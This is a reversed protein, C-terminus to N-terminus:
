MKERESIKHEECKTARTSNDNIIKMEYLISANNKKDPSCFVLEAKGKEKM